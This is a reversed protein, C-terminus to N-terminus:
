PLIERDQYYIIDSTKVSGLNKPGGLGGLDFNSLWRLKAGGFTTRIKLRDIM